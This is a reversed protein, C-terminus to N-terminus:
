KPISSSFIFRHCCICDISFFFFLSLSLSLLYYSASILCNELSILGISFNASDCKTCDIKTNNEVHCRLGFVVNEIGYDNPNFWYHSLRSFRVTIFFGFHFWFTLLLWLLMQHHLSSIYRHRRRDCWFFVFITAFICTLWVTLPM